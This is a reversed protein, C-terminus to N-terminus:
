APQWSLVAERQRNRSCTTTDLTGQRWQLAIQPLTSFLLLFMSLAAGAVISHSFINGNM